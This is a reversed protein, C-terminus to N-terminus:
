VDEDDSSQDESDSDSDTFEGDLQMFPLGAIMRLARIKEVTNDRNRAGVEIKAEFEYGMRDVHFEVVQGVAFGKFLKAFDARTKIDEGNVKNIIDGDFIKARFAPGKKRINTVRVGEDDDGDIITFGIRSRMNKLLEEAEVNTYINNECIELGAKIRLDRIQKLTMNSQTWLELIIKEKRKDVSRKVLIEIMDGPLHEALIDKLDDISNVPKGDMELVIDGTILYSYICGAGDRLRIVRLGPDSLGCDMAVFGISTTQKKLYELAEEKSLEDINITVDQKEKCEAEHQSIEQRKIDAGCFDCDELIDPCETIHQTLIKYKIVQNCCKTTIKRNLCKTTQHTEIQSKLIIKDCLDCKESNCEKTHDKLTSRIIEKDCEPCKIKRKSCRSEHQTLHSQTPYSHDCSKCKFKKIDKQKETNPVVQNAQADKSCCCGM